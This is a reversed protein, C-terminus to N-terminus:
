KFKLSSVTLQAISHGECADTPPIPVFVGADSGPARVDFNSVQEPVCGEVNDGDSITISATAWQEPQLPIPILSSITTIPVVGVPGVDGDKEFWVLPSGDIQCLAGSSNLFVLTGPVKGASDDGSTEYSITFDSTTCTKPTPGPPPPPPPAPENTSTATATPAHTAAATSAASAASPPPANGLISAPACGALLSVALAAVGAALALTRVSRTMVWTHAPTCLLRM